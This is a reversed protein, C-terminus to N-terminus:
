DEKAKQAMELKAQLRYKGNRDEPSYKAPRPIITPKDCKPCKELMTYINCISCKKIHKM